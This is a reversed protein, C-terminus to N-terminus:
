LLENGGATPSIAGAPNSGTRAFDENLNLTREPGGMQRDGKSSESYVCGTREVDADM